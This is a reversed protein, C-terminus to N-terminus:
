VKRLFVPVFEDTDFIFFYNTLIVAKVQQGLHQCNIMGIPYCSMFGDIMFEEVLHSIASLIVVM